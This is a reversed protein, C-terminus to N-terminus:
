DQLVAAARVQQSKGPPSAGTAKRVVYAAFDLVPDAAPEREQTYVIDNKWALFTRFDTAGLSKLDESLANPWYPGLEEVVSIRREREEEDPLEAVWVESRLYEVFIRWSSGPIRALDITGVEVANIFQTEAKLLDDPTLGLRLSATLVSVMLAPRTHRLVAAQRAWGRESREKQEAKRQSEALKILQSPHMKNLPKGFEREAYRLWLPNWYCDDETGSEIQSVSLMNFTANTYSLDYIGNAAYIDVIGDFLRYPDRRAAQLWLEALVCIRDNDSARMRKAMAIEQRWRVASFLMAAEEGHKIRAVERARHSVYYPDDSRSRVWSLFAVDPDAAARDFVPEGLLRVVDNVWEKFLRKASDADIVGAQQLIFAAESMTGDDQLKLRQAAEVIKNYSSM